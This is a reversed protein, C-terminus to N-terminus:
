LQMYVSKSASILNFKIIYSNKLLIICNTKKEHDRKKKGPQRTPKELDLKHSVFIYNPVAKVSQSICGSAILTNTSSLAIQMQFFRPKIYKSHIHTALVPTRLFQLSAIGKSYIILTIARMQSM